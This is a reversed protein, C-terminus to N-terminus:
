ALKGLPQLGPLPLEVRVHTGAKMEEFSATGGLERVRFRVSTLGHGVREGRYGVGIVGEFLEHDSLRRRGLTYVM